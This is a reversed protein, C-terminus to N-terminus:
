GVSSSQRQYLGQIDLLLTVANEGEPPYRSYGDWDRGSYAEGDTGLWGTNDCRDDLLVLEQSGPGTANPKQLDKEDAQGLFRRLATYSYQPPDLRSTWQTFFADVITQNAEPTLKRDEAPYTRRARRRFKPDWAFVRRRERKVPVAYLDM